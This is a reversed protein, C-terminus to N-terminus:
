FEEHPCRNFHGKEVEVAHVAQSHMSYWIIINGLRDAPSVLNGTRLAQKLLRAGLFANCLLAVRLESFRAVPVWNVHCYGVSTYRASQDPMLKEDGISSRGPRGQMGATQSRGM